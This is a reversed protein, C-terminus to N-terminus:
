PPAFLPSPGRKLLSWHELQWECGDTPPDLGLAVTKGKTPGFGSVRTKPRFPACFLRGDKTVGFPGTRSARKLNKRFGFPERLLVGSPPTWSRKTMEPRASAPLQAM